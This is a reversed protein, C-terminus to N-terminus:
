DKGDDLHYTIGDARLLDRQPAGKKDPVLFAFLREVRGDDYTLVLTPGDFRYKGGSARSNSFGVGSTVSGFSTGTDTAGFFGGGSRSRTFRGNKDFTLAYDFRSGGTGVLASTVITAEYRGTLTTGTMSPLKSFTQGGLEFGSATKKFSAPKDGGIQITTGSVRYVDCVPLGNPKTKSCDADAMGAEPESTYVYGSKDFFYFDYCIGGCPLDLGGNATVMLTANRWSVYAGSLGGSGKPPAPAKTTGYKPRATPKVVTTCRVNPRSLDFAREGSEHEQYTASRDNWPGGVFEVDSWDDDQDSRFDVTYRGTQGGIRYTKNALIELTGASANKGDLTVCAYKGAPPTKLKFELLALQERPGRQYCEFDREEAGVGYLTVDQGHDGFHLYSDSDSALPGSTWRIKTLVGDLKIQYRGTGNPARYQGKGLIQVVLDPSLSDGERRGYCRFEDPILDRNPDGGAAVFQAANMAKVSPLAAPKAPANATPVKAPSVAVTEVLSAVASQYKEFLAGNTAVYLALAASENEITMTLIRYTTRGEATTVFAQSFITAGRPGRTSEVNSANKVTGGRLLSTATATFFTNPEGSVPLDRTLMVFVEEGAPVNPPKFTVTSEGTTRTWGSPPQFSVRGFTDALAFSCLLLLVLLPARM